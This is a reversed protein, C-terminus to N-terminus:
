TKHTKNRQQSLGARQYIQERFVKFRKLNDQENISAKLEDLLKDLQNKHVAIDKGTQNLIALLSTLAEIEVWPAPIANSQDIVKTFYQCASQIEGNYHAIKGEFIKAWLAYIPMSREQTKTTLDRTIDKVKKWDNTEIYALAQSSQILIIGLQADIFDYITKAQAMLLHGQENRGSLCLTLGWHFLNEFGVMHGPAAETGKQFNEEAAQYDHLKSMLNGLQKCGMAIVDQYQYDEGIQIAKKAQTAAAGINGLELSVQSAYSQSYGLLRWAQSREGLEISLEAYKQAQNYDGCYYQSLVMAVYAPLLTHSPSQNIKQASEIALQAHIKGGEPYGLIMNVVTMQTHSYSRSKIVQPDNSDVSLKLANDFAKVSENVKNLMYLFVGQNNFSQVLRAINDSQRLYSIALTAHELGKEYDDVTFDAESLIDYATGILSASERQEGLILMENSLNRLVETDNMDYVMQSWHHYLNFIEDDTAPIEFDKLLSQAREFAQFAAQASFLSRAQLGADVWFGFALHYKGSAEYHSALVSAPAPVAAKALAQAVRSHLLQVRAPTISQKLVDRIKDHIFKYRVQGKKGPIPQIFSLNELDELAYVINDAREDTVTTVLESSFETGIVAATELVEKNLPNLKKVRHMILSSISKALPIDGDKNLDTQPSSEVITRLTELVFFPNGGTAHTLKQIFDIQPPTHLFFRAIDYIDDTGLHSLNIITGDKAQQISDLFEHFYPNTDEDRAMLALASDGNFPPRSLLYAVTILTPEDAWQADDIVLFLPQKSSLVLFAQRVAELILGQADEPSIPVESIKLNPFIDKIEPLLNALHSTWSEPIAQWDQPTVQYRLIERIPNFPITSELPRCTTVLLHPTPVLDSTLKQILRTKGLGSEGLVVIGQHRELAQHIDVLEQHRGVFPTSVSPHISWKSKAPVTGERHQALQDYLSIIKDPPVSDLEHQYIKKIHKFYKRAPGYQKTEILYRLVCYHAEDNTNDTELVMHAFGLASDIKQALYAHHNL